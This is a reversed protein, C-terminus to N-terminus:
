SQAQRVLQEAIAGAAKEGARQKILGEKAAGRVRVSTSDAGDSTLSVTVVVPNLGGLGTGVIARVTSSGSEDADEDILQGAGSLTGRVREACVSRPMALTIDVEGVNKKLRKATFRAGFGGGHGGGGTGALAGGLQGGMRGMEGIARVLIADEDEPVVVVTWGNRWEPGVTRGIAVCQAMDARSDLPRM